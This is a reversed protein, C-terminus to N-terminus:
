HSIYGLKLLERELFQGAPIIVADLSKLRSDLQSKYQHLTRGNEQTKRNIDATYWLEYEKYKTFAENFETLTKGYTIIDNSSKILPMDKVHEFATMAFGNLIFQRQDMVYFSELNQDMEDLFNLLLKKDSHKNFLCDFFGM